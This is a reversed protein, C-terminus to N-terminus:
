LRATCPFYSNFYFDKYCRPTIVSSNHLINSYRTSRGGFYYSYFIIGRTVNQRHALLELSGNLSPDTTRCVRIQQEDLIELGNSHAVARIHCCYEM